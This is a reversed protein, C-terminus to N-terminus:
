DFIEWWSSRRGGRRSNRDNDDDDDDDDDRGRRETRVPEEGRRALLKELEGRDLWIGRCRECRDITIGDRDLESMTSSTCRPCNM